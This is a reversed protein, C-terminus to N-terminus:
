SLLECPKLGTVRKFATSFHAISSYGLELAAATVTYSGNQLLEKAKSIRLDQQYEHITKGTVAKFGKKLYCENIAVKRALEKITYPKGPQKDLLIVAEQIKERESEYALFRCAPVLCATFPVAISELARSLLQIALQSANLSGLLPNLGHGAALEKLLVSSKACLTFQLEAQQETNFPHATHILALPFQEFFGPLFTISYVLQNGIGSDTLYCLQVSFIGEDIPFYCLKAQEGPQNGNPYGVEMVQCSICNNVPFDDWKIVVGDKGIFKELPTAPAPQKNYVKPM